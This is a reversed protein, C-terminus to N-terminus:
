RGWAFGGLGHGIDAIVGEFRNNNIDVLLLQNGSPIDVRNTALVIFDGPSSIEGNLLRHEAQQDRNWNFDQTEALSWIIEGTESDIIYEIPVYVSM